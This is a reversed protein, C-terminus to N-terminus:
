LLLEMVKSADRGFSEASRNCLEACSKRTVHYEKVNRWFRDRAATYTINDFNLLRDLESSTPVSYGESRHLKARKAGSRLDRFEAAQCQGGFMTHFLCTSLDYEDTLGVFGMNEIRSLAIRLQTTNAPIGNCSEGVVMRTQCNGVCAAYKELEALSLVLLDKCQPSSMNANEDHCHPAVQQGTKPFCDHRGHFFGSVLRQRPERFMAMVHQMKPEPIKTLMMSTLPAHGPKLHAVSPLCGDPVVGSLSLPSELLLFNPSVLGSCASHIVTTMFNGGTKPIHLYVVPWLSPARGTPGEKGGASSALLRSAQLFSGPEEAAGDGRQGDEGLAPSSRQPPAQLLSCDERAASEESQGSVAVIFIFSLAAARSAM